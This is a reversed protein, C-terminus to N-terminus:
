RVRKRRKRAWRIKRRIMEYEVGKLCAMEESVNGERRRSKEDNIRCERRSDYTKRRTGM